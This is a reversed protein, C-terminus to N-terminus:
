WVSCCTSARRRTARCEAIVEDPEGAICGGIGRLYEFTLLQHLGQNDMNELDELWAYNGLGRKREEM